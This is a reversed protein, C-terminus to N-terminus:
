DQLLYDALARSQRESLDEFAPMALPLYNQALRRLREDSGRAAAPDRLYAALAPANWHESLKRLSPGRGSGEGSEGHCTGCGFERYVREGEAHQQSMFRVGLVGLLMVGGALAFIKAKM